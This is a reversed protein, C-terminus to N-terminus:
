EQVVAKGKGKSKIQIRIKYCDNGLLAGAIPNQKLSQVLLDVDNVISPYKKKLTKLESLFLSTPEITFM